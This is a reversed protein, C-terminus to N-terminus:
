EGKNFKENFGAILLPILAIYNVKLFGNEDETVAQPFVKQVEQAIVMSKEIKEPDNIMNGLIGTIQSIIDSANQIPRINEKLNRDSFAWIDGTATIQGNVNLPGTTASGGCYLSNTSVAGTTATGGVYLSNSISMAAATGTGNVTLTGTNINNSLVANVGTLNGASSITNATLTSANLLGANNISVETGGNARIRITNTSNNHYILGREGNNADRYWLTLNTDNGRVITSSAITLTGTMVDGAKLVYRADGAAQNLALSPQAINYLIAVNFHEVDVNNLAHTHSQGSGLVNTTGNVTHVHDGSANINQIATLVGADASATIATIGSRDNGKLLQSHSHGGSINTSGTVSFAHPPLQEISLATSGITGSSGIVSDTKTIGSTSMAKLYANQNLNPVRQLVAGNPGNWQWYNGDSYCWGTSTVYPNAQTGNRGNQSGASGGMQERISEPTQGSILSYQTISGPPLSTFLGPTGSGSNSGTPFTIYMTTGSISASPVASSNYIVSDVKTNLKSNINAIEQLIPATIESSPLWTIWQQGDYYKMRKITSDFIIAGSQGVPQQVNPMIVSSASLNIPKPATPTGGQVEFTLDTTSIVKGIPHNISLSM